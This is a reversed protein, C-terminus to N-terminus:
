QDAGTQAGALEPQPDTAGSQEMTREVAPTLVDLVPKPYFGLVLIVALLPAVVWVERKDLDKWGAAFARVPGTFV